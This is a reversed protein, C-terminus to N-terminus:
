GASGAREGLDGVWWSQDPGRYITIHDGQDLAYLDRGHHLLSQGANGQGDRWTLRTDPCGPVRIAARRIGTVTARDRRGYERTRIADVSRRGVVWLCLLWAIGVGLALTSTTRAASHYWNGALEITRPDDPLYRLSVRDGRTARLYEAANVLREQMVVEGAHTPYRLTMWYSTSLSGDPNRTRAFRKHSITGNAQRGEDDFRRALDADSASVLSLGVFVLGLIVVLWGGMRLFLRFIPVPKEQVVMVM